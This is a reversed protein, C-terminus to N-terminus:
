PRPQKGILGPHFVLETAIGTLEEVPAETILLEITMVVPTEETEPVLGEFDEVLTPATIGEFEDDLTAGDDVCPEDEIMPMHYELEVVLEVSVRGCDLVDISDVGVLVLSVVLIVVGRFLV